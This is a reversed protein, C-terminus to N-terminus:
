LKDAIDLILKETKEWCLCPDMISMGFVHKDTKQDGDELYSEIM